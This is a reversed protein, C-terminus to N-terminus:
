RVFHTRELGNDTALEQVEVVALMVTGVHVIEVLQHFLLKVGQVLSVEFLHDRELLLNLEVATTVVVVLEEPVGEARWFVAVQWLFVADEVLLEDFFEAAHLGEDM